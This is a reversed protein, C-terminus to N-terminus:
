PFDSWAVHTCSPWWPVMTLFPSSSLPCHFLFLICVFLCVKSICLMAAIFIKYQTTSCFLMVNVHLLNQVEHKEQNKREKM